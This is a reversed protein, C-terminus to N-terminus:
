RQRKVFVTVSRIETISFIKGEYREFEGRDIARKPIPVRLTERGDASTSGSTAGSRYGIEALLDADVDPNRLVAAAQVGCITWGRKVKWSVYPAGVTTTFTVAGPTTGRGARPEGPIPRQLARLPVRTATATCGHWSYTPSPFGLFYGANASPPLQKNEPNSRVGRGSAVARARQKRASRRGGAPAAAIKVRRTSRRVNGSADTVTVVITATVARGARLATAIAGLAAGGLTQRLVVSGGAAVSATARPLAVTTARARARGRRARGRAKASASARAGRAPAVTAVGSAVATVPESRATVRTAITLRGGTLKASTDGGVSVGDVARDAPPAPRPAPGPLPDPGPRPVPVVVPPPGAPGVSWSPDSPPEGDDYRPTIETIGSGDAAATALAATEADYDYTVFAIRTGDPSYAPSRNAASDTWRVLPTPTGGAVPITAIALYDV